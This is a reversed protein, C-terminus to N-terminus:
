YSSKRSAHTTTATRERTYTLLIRLNRLLSRNVKAIYHPRPPSLRHQGPPIHGPPVQRASETSLCTFLGRSPGAMYLTGRTRRGGLISRRLSGRTFSRTPPPPPLLDDRSPARGVTPSTGEWAYWHVM